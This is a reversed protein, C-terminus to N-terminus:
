NVLTIRYDACLLTFPSGTKNDAFVYRTEGETKNVSKLSVDTYMDDAFTETRKKDPCEGTMMVEQQLRVRVNGAALMTQMRLVNKLANRSVSLNDLASHAERTRELSDSNEALIQRYLNEANRISKSIINPDGAGMAVMSQRAEFVTLGYKLEDKALLSLRKSGPGSAAALQEFSVRARNYQYKRKLNQAKDYLAQLEKDNAVPVESPAKNKVSAVSPLESSPPLAKVQELWAPKIVLAETKDNLRQAAVRGIHEFANYIGQYDMDHVSISATSIYTPQGKLSVSITLKATEAPGILSIVLALKNKKEAETISFLGGKTLEALATDAAAAKM